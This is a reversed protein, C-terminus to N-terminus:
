SLGADIFAAIEEADECTRLKARNEARMLMVASKSLLQLHTTGAEAAPVYLTLAIDVPKKDFSPWDLPHTFRVFAIGAKQIADCKAHPTAFGDMLGTEGEAERDLFAQYVDDVSTGYGLEVGFKALYMLAEERSAVDVGVRVMSSNVFGAM